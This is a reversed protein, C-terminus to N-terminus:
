SFVKQMGLTTEAAIVGRQMVDIATLSEGAGAMMCPASGGTEDRRIKSCLVFISFLDMNGTLQMSWSIWTRRWRIQREKVVLKFKAVGGSGADPVM